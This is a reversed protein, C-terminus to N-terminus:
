KSSGKNYLGSLHSRSSSLTPILGNRTLLKPKPGRIHKPIYIQMCYNYLALALYMNVLERIVYQREYLFMFLVNNKIASEQQLVTIPRSGCTVHQEAGPAIIHIEYKTKNHCLPDIRSCIICM